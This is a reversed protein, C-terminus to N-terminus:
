MGHEEFRATRGLEDRPLLDGDVRRLDTAFGREVRGLEDGEVDLGRAVRGEQDELDARLAEREFAREREEVSEDVAACRDVWIGLLAMVDIPRHQDPRWLEAIRASREQAERLARHEDLVAVVGEVRPEDAAAQLAWELVRDDVGRGHGAKHEVQRFALRGAERSQDLLELEVDRGRV